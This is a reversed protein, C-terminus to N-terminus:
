VKENEIFHNSISLNSKRYERLRRERLDGGRGKKYILIIRKQSKVFHEKLRKTLSDTDRM